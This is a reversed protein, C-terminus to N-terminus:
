GEDAFRIDRDVPVTPTRELQLGPNRESSPITPTRRISLGSGVVPFARGFSGSGGDRAPRDRAQFRLSRSPSSARTSGETPSGSGSGGGSKRGREPSPDRGRFLLHRVARVTSSARARAPSVTPAPRAIAPPRPPPAEDSDDDDSDVEVRGTRTLALGRNSPRPPSIPEDVDPPNPQRGRPAVEDISARERGKGKSARAPSSATRVLKALKELPRPPEDVKEDDM